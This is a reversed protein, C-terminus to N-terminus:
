SADRDRGAERDLGDLVRQLLEDTQLVTARLADIARTQQEIRSEVEAELRTIALGVSESLDDRTMRLKLQDEVEIVKQALRDVVAGTESVRGEVEELRPSVHSHDATVRLIEM